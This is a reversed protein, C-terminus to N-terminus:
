LRRLMNVLREQPAGLYYLMWVLYFVGQTRFIGHTLYKRASTIVSDELVSFRGYRKIRHIIEQDEMVLLDERFGGSKCFVARTVFLSQDGFRFANINFRTFWCNAKLFWHHYDFALRFCGGVTGHDCAATLQVDFGLPPITDAHLFYLIEGSAVSAGLNMQTARGKRESRVGIAGHARAVDLTGDTSGGDVVIIELQHQGGKAAHINGITAAITAAENYVPIVISVIPEM